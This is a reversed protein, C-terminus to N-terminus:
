RGRVVVPLSGAPEYPWGDQAPAYARFQFAVGRSDDDSFRYAYRFRGRRDTEVARFERWPLGPLRFQLEVSKGAGPITGPTAAVRGSFVVPRGGVRATRASASLRVRSLVALSLSRSVARALTASGDFVAFAERSPGATLRAEFGGGSDTSVTSERVTGGELREVIRVRAHGLPEGLAAVLRGRLLVSRGYPARRSPAKGAFGAVLVTGAKIPNTLVMAGGDARRGTRARNGARDRVAAEFEYKGPPYADSDWHARLEGGSAAALPLAQFADGTGAQRVGIWGSVPDVGSMKDGVMVRILEPELPEQSNRFAISPAGRDIRLLATAPAPNAVGNSRKGDDVNGALDRAYFAVEHTGEAAVRASATDGSAIAPVDGDIAIATFPSPGRGDPAMGSRGDTATAILTVPHDVWDTPAGSLKTVPPTEDVRLAATGVAASSMGAGSVAVAHVYRTGEPLEPISFSDGPAGGALDTEAETCRDAAACPRGAVASDVSVAYGRIGSPPAAGPHELRVTFPFGARGIWSGDPLPVAAGPRTDDFRLKATAAAGIGGATDELRIEATYAGPLAPVQLGVLETAPWGLRRESVAIAGLPDRVLYRVAAVSPAAAPNVWRLRFARDAHWTDEGDQVELEAPPSPTAGASSSFVMAVFIGALLAGTGL